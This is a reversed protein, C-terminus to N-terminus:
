GSRATGVCAQRPSVGEKTNLYIEQPYSCFQSFHMMLCVQLGCLDCSVNRDLCENEKHQNMFYKDVKMGCKCEVKFYFFTVALCVEAHASQLHAEIDTKKFLGNCKSCLTNHRACMAEHVAANELPFFRGSTPLFSNCCGTVMHRM